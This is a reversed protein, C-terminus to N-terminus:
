PSIMPRHSDEPIAGAKSPGPDILSAFEFRFAVPCVAKSHAPATARMRRPPLDSLFPRRDAKSLM